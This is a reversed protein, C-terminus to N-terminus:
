GLEIQAQSAVFAQEWGLVRLNGVPTLYITQDLKEFRYADMEACHIQRHIVGHQHALAITHMLQTFLRTAECEDFREGAEKKKEIVDYLSTLDKIEVVFDHINDVQQTAALCKMELRILEDTTM